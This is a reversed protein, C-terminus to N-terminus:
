KIEGAKVKRWKRKGSKIDNDFDKWTYSDKKVNSSDKVRPVNKSPKFLDSKRLKKKHYAARNFMAMDAMRNYEREISKEYGKFCNYLERPSL